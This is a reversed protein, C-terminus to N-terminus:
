LQLAATLFSLGRPERSLGRLNNRVETSIPFGVSRRLIASIGGESHAATVTPRSSCGRGRKCGMAMFVLPGRAVALWRDLPTFISYNWCCYVGGGCVVYLRFN